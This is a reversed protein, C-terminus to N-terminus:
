LVGLEEVAQLVQSTSLFEMADNDVCAVRPGLPAFRGPSTAGFMAVTPAGVAAALHSRFLV